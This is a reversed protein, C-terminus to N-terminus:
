NVGATLEYTVSTTYTGTNIVTGAPVSLNIGATKNVKTDVEKGDQDYSKETEEKLTGLALSSNGAGHTADATAIAQADKSLTIDGATANPEMDGEAYRLGSYKLIAGTLVADGNKFDGDQKVTLSWGKRDTGRSDKVSVFPVIDKTANADDETPAKIKDAYANWSNSASKSQTGFNINSAYTIMLEAGNPNIPDVPDVPVDPDDPNVPNVPTNDDSFKIFGKTTVHTADTYTASDANSVIPAFSAGITSTLVASGMLLHSLKMFNIMGKMKLNTSKSSPLCILQRLVLKFALFLQIYINLKSKLGKTYTVM